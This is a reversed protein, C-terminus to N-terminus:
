QEIQERAALVRRRHPRRASLGLKRPTCPIGVGAGCEPCALTLTRERVERGEIVAARWSDAASEKLAKGEDYMSRAQPAYAKWYLWLLPLLVLGIVLLGLAAQVTSKDMLTQPGIQM